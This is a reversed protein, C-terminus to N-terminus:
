CVRRRTISVAGLASASNSVITSDLLRGTSTMSLGGGRDTVSCNRILVNSIVTNAGAVRIGGGRAEGGGGAVTIGAILTNAAGSTVDICRRAGEGDLTVTTFNNDLSRVTMRESISITAGLTYTGNSIVIEHGDGAAAIAADIAAKPTLKADAWTLGSNGDNGFDAVFYTAAGVPGLAWGVGALVLGALSILSPRM